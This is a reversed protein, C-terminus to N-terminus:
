VASRRLLPSTVSGDSRILHIPDQSVVKRAMLVVILQAVVVSGGWAAAIATPLLFASLAAVALAFALQFTFGGLHNRAFLSVIQQEFTLTQGTASNLRERVGRVAGRTNARREARARSQALSSVGTAQLRTTM